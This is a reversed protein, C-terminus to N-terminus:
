NTCEKEKVDKSTQCVKRRVVEHFQGQFYYLVGIGSDKITNFHQGMKYCFFGIPMNVIVIYVCNALHKRRISQALVKDFDCEKLEFLHKRIEQKMPTTNECIFDVELGNIMQEQQFNKFGRPLLYETLERYIKETM